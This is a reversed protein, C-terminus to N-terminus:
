VYVDLHEHSGLYTRKDAHSRHRFQKLLPVTEGGQIFACYLTLFSSLIVLFPSIKYPIRYTTRRGSHYQQAHGLM